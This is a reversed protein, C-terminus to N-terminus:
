DIVAFLMLLSLGTISFLSQLFFSLHMMGVVQGSENFHRLLYLQHKYPELCQFTSVCQSVKMCIPKVNKLM